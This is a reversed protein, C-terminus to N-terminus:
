YVIIAAAIGGLIGLTRYLKGHTQCHQRESEALQQMRTAAYSLSALQSELDTSGLEKSLPLLVERHKDSLEGSQEIARSFSEAFPEGRMLSDRCDALFKLEPYGAALIRMLNLISPSLYRLRESTTILMASLSQAM